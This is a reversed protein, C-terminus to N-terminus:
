ISCHPHVKDMGNMEGAWKRRSEPDSNPQQLWDWSDNPLPQALEDYPWMSLYAVM